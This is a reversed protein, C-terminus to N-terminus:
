GSSAAVAVKIGDVADVAEDLEVVVETRHVEVVV